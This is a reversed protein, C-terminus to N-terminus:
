SIAFHHGLVIDKHRNLNKKYYQIRTNGKYAQRVTPATM